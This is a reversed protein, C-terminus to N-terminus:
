SRCALIEGNIIYGSVTIVEGIEQVDQPKLARSNGGPLRLWWRGRQDQGYAGEEPLVLAGFKNTFVRM